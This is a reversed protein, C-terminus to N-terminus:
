CCGTVQPDLTWACFQIASYIGFKVTTRDIDTQYIRVRILRSAATRPRTLSPSTVCYRSQYSYVRDMALGHAIM